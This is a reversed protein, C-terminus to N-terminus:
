GRSFPGPLPHSFAVVWILAHEVRDPNPYGATAETSKLVCILNPGPGYIVM